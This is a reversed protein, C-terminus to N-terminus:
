VSKLHCNQEINQNAATKEDVAGAGGGDGAVKGNLIADNGRAAIQGTCMGGPRDLGCAEADSGAEEVDVAVGVGGEKVRFKALTLQALTKGCDYVAVTAHRGEGAGPFVGRGDAGIELRDGAKKWVGILGKCVIGSGQGREREMDALKNAAAREPGGHGAKHRIQRVLLEM